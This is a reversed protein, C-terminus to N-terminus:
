SADIDLEAGSRGAHLRARTLLDDLEGRQALSVLETYGGVSVDGVFIQPVTRQGSAEVLWERAEPDATVDIEEFDIGRKSLFAKAARCYSCSTTTYVRVLSM